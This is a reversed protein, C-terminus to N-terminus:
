TLYAYNFVFHMKFGEGGIETIQKTLPHCRTYQFSAHYFYVGESLVFAEKYVFHM